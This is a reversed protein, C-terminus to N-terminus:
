ILESTFMPSIKEIKLYVASLLIFAIPLIYYQTPPFYFGSLALILLLLNIGCVGSLIKRHSWGSQHLRQYAHLRHAQTWKEKKLIRRILTITADYIFLSYLTFGLIIPIGVHQQAYLLTAMILFGLFASGVDGMFIKAPPFNLGLFGIICACVIGLMLSVDQANVSHLFFAYPLLVFLAEISAFGDTGDMFNFLNISWVMMFLAILNIVWNHFLGHTLLIFMFAVLTHAIIRIKASLGVMDDIFSICALLVSPLIFLLATQISIRHLLSLFLVSFMWVLVVILGGGRPTPLVHSSRHNPIDILQKRLAVQRFQNILFYSIFILLLYLLM